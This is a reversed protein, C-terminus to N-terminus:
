PNSTKVVKISAPESQGDSLVLIYTGVPFTSLDLQSSDGGLVQSLLVVGRADALTATLPHPPSQSFRLNLLQGTPNPYAFVQLDLRNIELVPTLHSEPQQFGQTLEIIVVGNVEGYATETSLEGLTWCFTYGGAQSIEGASTVVNRETKPQATLLLPLLFLLPFTQLRKM